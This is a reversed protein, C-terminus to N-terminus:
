VVYVQQQCLVGWGNVISNLVISQLAIVMKNLWTDIAELNKTTWEINLKIAELAQAAIRSDKGLYSAVPESEFFEKFQLFVYFVQM